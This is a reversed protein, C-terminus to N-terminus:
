DNGQLRKNLSNQWLDSVTKIAESKMQNINFVEGKNNAVIEDFVEFMLQESSTEGIYRRDKLAIKLEELRQSQEDNREPLALLAYYEDFVEENEPDQTSNLGFFASTLLQEVRFDAPNPLDDLLEIGTEGHEMVCVEGERLGRLCLPDHTTCIFQMGPFARKLATVIRMKWTPHLHCDLEDLLVIGEANSPNGWLKIAVALIDISLAIVSKFGDSLALLPTKQGNLSVIVKDKKKSFVTDEDLALLDKLLRASLDFIMSSQELLWSQASILPSFPDYLNNVRVYNLDKNNIGGSDRPLLRTAGYGLLVFQVYKAEKDGNVTLSSGEYNVAATKNKTRSFMAEKHSITLVHPEIFGSVKVKIIAKKCKEKILTAPNINNAKLLKFFNDAGGLCLAVAQLVSSKGTGNEGLLMQWNSSVNFNLYRIGKFNEITIQEIRREQSRSIAIGHSSTLSFDSQAIEFAKLNEKKKLIEKKTVVHISDLWEFRHGTQRTIKILDTALLQRKMAVYEADNGTLLELQRLGTILLNEFVVGEEAYTLVTKLNYGLEDMARKRAIILSPRNLGLITITMQGRRTDSFVQGEWDYVLHDAPNDVTPDLLLPEEQIEGGIEFARKTEDELPFRNAKGSAIGEHRRTRNCDPCSLLLNEWQSALWWYGPHAPSEAVSGKPRYQCIDGPTTSGLRSECWACKGHFLTNLAEKVEVSKYVKFDFWRQSRHKENFFMRAKYQEAEAAGGPQLAMPIAVRGRDVFLM